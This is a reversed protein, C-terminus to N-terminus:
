KTVLSQQRPRPPTLTTMLPTRTPLVKKPAPLPALGNKYRRVAERALDSFCVSEIQSREDGELVFELPDRRGQGGERLDLDDFTCRGAARRGRGNWGRAPEPDRSLPPRLSTPQPSDERLDREM